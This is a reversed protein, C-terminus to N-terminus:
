NPDEGDSQPPKAKPSSKPGPLEAEVPESPEPSRGFGLPKSGAPPPPLALDESKTKTSEPPEETVPVNHKQDWQALLKKLMAEQKTNRSRPSKLMPRLCDRGIWLLLQTDPDSSNARENLRPLLKDLKAQSREVFEAMGSKDQPRDRIERLENYMSHYIGAVDGFSVPWLWWAVLPLLVLPIAFKWDPLSRKWRTLTQEWPEQRNTRTPRTTVAQPKTASEVRSPTIPESSTEISVEPSTYDEDSTKVAAQAEAAKAAEAARAIAAEREAVIAKLRTLEDSREQKWRNLLDMESGPTALNSPPRTVTAPSSEMSEDRMSFEVPPPQMPAADTVANVAIVEATVPEEDQSDSSDESAAQSWHEIGTLQPLSEPPQDAASDTWFNSWGPLAGSRRPKASAMAPMEAVTISEEDTSEDFREPDGDQIETNDSTEFDSVTSAPADTLGRLVDTVSRWDGSDGCRAMDGPGLSGREDMELLTATTMPGWEAGFSAKVYWTAERDASM